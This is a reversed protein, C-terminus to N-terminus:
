SNTGERRIALRKLISINKASIKNYGINIYTSIEININKISCQMSLGKKYNVNSSVSFLLTEERAPISSSFLFFLPCM